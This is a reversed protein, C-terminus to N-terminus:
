PSSGETKPLTEKRSISSLRLGERWLFALGLLTVPVLQIGHALLALSKALVEEVGYLALSESAFFEFTGIFGPSSPIMIGLNLISLVFLSSSAPVEMRFGLSLLYFTGGECIWVLISLGMVGLFAKMSRLCALGSAFAQILARIKGGVADPLPKLFFDVLWLAWQEKLFLLFLFSLAAFFIVGALIGVQQPDFAGTHTKMSSRLGTTVLCFALFAVLTIGDFVRELVVTAFSGTASVSEKKGIVFARVFEGMRAPLLNNAMWSIMIVEFSSTFRIRKLPALLIQWRAARVLFSSLYVVVCPVLYAYQFSQLAEKMEAFPIGKLFFYLLAASILLGLITTIRKAKM